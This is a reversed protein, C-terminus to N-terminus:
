TRDIVTGNLKQISLVPSEKSPTQPYYSAFLEIFCNELIIRWIISIM